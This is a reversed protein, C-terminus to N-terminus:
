STCIVAATLRHTVYTVHSSEGKRSQVRKLTPLGTQVATELEWAALGACGVLPVGVLEPVPVAGLTLLVCEM